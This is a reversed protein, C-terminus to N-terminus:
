GGEASRAQSANDPRSSTQRERRPQPARRYRGGQSEALGRLELGSLVVLAREMPLGSSAAVAELSAPRGSLM